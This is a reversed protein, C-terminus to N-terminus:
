GDGGGWKGEVGGGGGDGEDGEVGGEGEEVGVLYGGGGVVGVGAWEGVGIGVVVEMGSMDCLWGM